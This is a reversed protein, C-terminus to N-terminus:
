GELKFGALDTRAKDFGKAMKSLTQDTDKIAALTDNSLQAVAQINANIDESVQTQEEAATAVQTIIGDLREMSTFVAEVVEANQQVREVSEKTVERSAGMSQLAKESSANLQQIMTQIEDTSSRTRQALQRVEDAVVAFGRGQDGARAAEIAANLALLNTQEAIAEITELIGSIAKTNDSLQEVFSFTSGLEEDLRTISSQIGSLLQRGEGSQQRVASTEEAASAMNGAIERSTHSMENIATAIQDTQEHQSQAYDVTQGSGARIAQLHTDAETMGNKLRGLTAALTKFHQDLDSSIAGLEDSSTDNLRLSIDQHNSAGSLVEQIRHVRRTLARQLRWMLVVLPVLVLVLAITSGYRLRSNAATVAASREAVATGLAKALTNIDGIRQTALDFWNSPGSVQEFNETAIFRESVQSVQRWIPKASLADMQKKWEEGALRNFWALQGAEDKLYQSVTAHQAATTRTAAFIGNLAGRSQGAREKMRLLALEAQMSQRLGSDEIHGVLLEIGNLARANLESYYAFAPVGPTLADVQRRISDRNQLQTLVPQVAERFLAPSLYSYEEETASALAAGAAQAQTRQTKLAAAGQSGGSGLFGATLGREVAHNHAVGDLLRTLEVINRTQQAAYYDDALTNFWLGFGLAILFLPLLTIIRLAHVIKLNGLWSM